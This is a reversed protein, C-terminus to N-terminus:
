AGILRAFRDDFPVGYSVSEIVNVLCGTEADKLHLYSIAGSVGPPGALFQRRDMRFMAERYYDELESLETERFAAAYPTERIAALAAEASPAAFIRGLEAPKLRYHFPLLYSQPERVEPFFRKLRLLCILNLMDTQFGLMRLLAERSAADACRRAERFFHSYYATRLACDASPYDPLEERTDASLRALAPAYITRGAAALLDEYSEASVLLHFDMHSRYNLTRPLDLPDGARGARLRRLCALIADLEVRLVPFALMARDERPVFFSLRAYETGVQGRLAAEVNARTLPCGELRAMAPAWGTGRLYDLAAAVDPLAAIRVFDEYRLRRGYMARLKAGMAPLVNGAGSM